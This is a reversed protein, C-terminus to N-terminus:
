KPWYQSSQEPESIQRSVLQSDLRAHAFQMKSMRAGFASLIGVSVNKKSALLKGEPDLMVKSVVFSTMCPIKGCSVHEITQGEPAITILPESFVAYIIFPIDEM